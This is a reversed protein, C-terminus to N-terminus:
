RIFQSDRTWEERTADEIRSCVKKKWQVASPWEERRVAQSLLKKSAM